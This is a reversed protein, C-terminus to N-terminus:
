LVTVQGYKKHKTTDNEPMDQSGFSWRRRCMEAWNMGYKATVNVTDPSFIKFMLSLNHTRSATLWCGAHFRSHKHGSVLCLYSLDFGRLLARFELGQWPPKQLESVLYLLVVGPDGNNTGVFLNCSCSACVRITGQTRTGTFINETSPILPSLAFSSQRGTFRFCFVTASWLAWFRAPFLKWHSLYHM